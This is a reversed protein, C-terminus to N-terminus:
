IAESARTILDEWKNRNLNGIGAFDAPTAGNLSSHPRIFNYYAQQFDMQKRCSRASFMGRMVKTRQKVTGQLREMIQMENKQEPGTYKVHITNPFYKKVPANYQFAGDTAIVKPNIKMDKMSELANFSYESTRFITVSDNIWFRTKSDMM